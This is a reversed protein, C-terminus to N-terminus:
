VFLRFPLYYLRICIGISLPRTTNTRPIGPSLGHTDRDLLSHHFSRQAIKTSGPNIRAINPAQQM